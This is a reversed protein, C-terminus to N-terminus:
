GHLISDFAAILESLKQKREDTLVVKQYYQPETLMSNREIWALADRIILLEKAGINVEFRREFQEERIQM